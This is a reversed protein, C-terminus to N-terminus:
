RRELLVRLSDPLSRAWEHISGRGMCVVSDYAVATEAILRPLDQATELSLVTKNPCYAQIARTVTEKNYYPIPEEGVGDVDTVIIIDARDFCRCFDPFLNKLRSYRYPQFVAIVRNRNLLQASALVTQIELPHHAHDDIILIDNVEGVVTFRRQVGSFTELAKRIESSPLTLLWGIGISALANLINHRGLLPLCIGSLFDRGEVRVDFRSGTSTLAINKAQIDARADFGYSLCSFPYHRAIEDWVVCRNLTNAAFQHFAKLLRDFKRHYTLHEPTINTIVSFTPSFNLFSGDSEDAEVVMWQGSGLRANSQYSHILGGNVVTPSLGATELLHAILATTTTKGHSGSVAISKYCTMLAALLDSRHRWLINPRRQSLRERLLPPIASSYVALTAEELYEPAHGRYIKLGLASLAKTTETECSDCGQVSYGMSHLVRALASMGIGGIGIFHIVDKSDLKMPIM